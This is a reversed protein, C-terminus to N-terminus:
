PHPTIPLVTIVPLESAPDDPGYRWFIRWASPTRNEVYSEWVVKADPDVPFSEYHHSALGPYRPNLELHHLARRVKKLRAQGDPSSGLAELTEAARKTFKLKYRM